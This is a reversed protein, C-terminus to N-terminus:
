PFSPPTLSLIQASCTAVGSVFVRRVANMNPDCATQKIELPLPLLSAGGGGSVVCKDRTADQYVWTGGGCQPGVPTGSTVNNGINCGVPVDCYPASGSVVNIIKEDTWVRHAADEVSVRLRYSRPTLSLAATAIDDPSGSTRNFSATATGEFRTGAPVNDLRSLHEAKLNSWPFNAKVSVPTPSSVLDPNNRPFVEPVTLVVHQRAVTFSVSKTSRTRGLPGGQRGVDAVIELTHAGKALNLGAVSEQGQGGEAPQFLATQDVGDVKASVLTWPATATFRAPVPALLDPANNQPARIEVEGCAALLALLAAGALCAVSRALTTM